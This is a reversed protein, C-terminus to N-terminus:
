VRMEKIIPKMIGYVSLKYFLFVRAFHGKREYYVIVPYQTLRRRQTDDSDAREFILTNRFRGPAFGCGAPNLPLPAARLCRPMLGMTAQTERTAVSQAGRTGALAHPPNKEPCPAHSGNAL